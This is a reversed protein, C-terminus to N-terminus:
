QSELWQFDVVVFRRGLNGGPTVEEPVRQVVAELCAASLVVDSDFPDVVDGYCRIVFTDGRATLVPGLSMLLDAQSLYGPAFDSRYGEFAEANPFASEPPAGTIAATELGRNIDTLDIAAQLAGSLGLEAKDDAPSVLERNVFDALSLFPGRQKVQEVIEIALADVQADSLKRVGSWSAADSEGPSIDAGAYPLSFRSFVNDQGTDVGGGYKALDYDRVSALLARWAEVSTSNVNFGGEIMLNSAAATESADMDIAEDLIYLRQNALTETAPDFNTPVTSFFYQDWLAENAQYSTDFYTRLLHWATTGDNYYYEDTPVLPTSISNGFAYSPGNHTATDAGQAPAIFKTSLDLHQLQGLSVLGPTRPPVEFLVVRSAGTDSHSPGYFANDPNAVSTDTSFDGLGFNGTYHRPPLKSGATEYGNTSIHNSRLNFSALSRVTNLAVKYSFGANAFVNPFDTKEIAASSGPGSVSNDYGIGDFHALQDTWSRHMLHLNFRLSGSNLLQFDYYAPTYAPDVAESFEVYAYNLDNFGPTLANADFRSSDPNAATVLSSDIPGQYAASADLTLVKVEGPGFSLGKATFFISGSLFLGSTSSNGFAYPGFHQETSDTDDMVVTVELTTPTQQNHQLFQFLYDEPELAVNYPNFMVVAPFMHMRLNGSANLSFDFYLKIQTVVPAIVSTHATSDNHDRLGERVNLSPNLPDVSQSLNYFDKLLSWAPGPLGTRGLLSDESAYMYGAPLADHRLMHTLDHKFGGRRQDTLLSRSHATLDHFHKHVLSQYDEGSRSLLLGFGSLDSVMGLDSHNAPYAVGLWDEGEVPSQLMELGPRQAALLPIPNGNDGAYADTLNVRAKTSEDAVWYAFNGEVAGSRDLVQETPVVIVDHADSVSDMGVLTVGNAPNALSAATPEGSVLIGVLEPTYEQVNATADYAGGNRWVATWHRKSPDVNLGEDVSVAGTARQDPGAAEQLRGLAVNLALLANSRAKAHQGQLSALHTETVLQTSLSVLLLVLFGMLALALILAFGGRPHRCHPPTSQM